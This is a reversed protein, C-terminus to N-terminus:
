GTFLHTESFFKFIYGFKKKTKVWFLENKLMFPVIRVMTLSMGVFIELFIDLFRWDQVVSILYKKISSLFGMKISSVLQWHCGNSTLCSSTFLWGLNKFEGWVPYIPLLKCIKKKSWIRKTKELHVMWLGSIIEKNFWKLNPYHMIVRSFIPQTQNLLSTDDRNQTPTNVGEVLKPCIIKLESSNSGFPCTNLSM